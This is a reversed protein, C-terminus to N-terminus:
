FRTNLNLLLVDVSLPARSISDSSAWQASISTNKYIGFEGEFVYGKQDTGGLGFDSDAFIDLVADTEIRKYAAAIRWDGFKNIERHGADFRVHWGLDGPPVGVEGRLRAVEAPNLALNKVVEGTMSFRLPGRDYSLTAIGSLLNFDSALGALTTLGDTRMNFLSNGQSLLGPATYDFLRSGDPNNKRSKVHTYNYYSGAASITVNRIPQLALGAQSAYLWRDNHDIEREQLPFAGATGFLSLGFLKDGFNYNLRGAVGEPNIDPDWIMDTSLFPNAMRGGTLTVWKVPQIEIFARDLWVANKNFYSGLTNNTSVPGNDDGSALRVGVRVAKNIMADIALRARYRIRHRDVPSNIFPLGTANNVGGARNIANVDPFFPLNNTGFREGDYRLRFDGSIQIRDLWGPLSNPAVWGESKAQAVVEQKVEDKIQARLAEPVYPVDITSATKPQERQARLEAAHRAKDLLQQAKERPLLGEDVMLQLLEIGIDETTQASAPAGMALAIAAGALLTNRLSM